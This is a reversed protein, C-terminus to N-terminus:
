GKANYYKENPVVINFHCISVHGDLISKMIVTLPLVLGYYVPIERKRSWVWEGLKLHYQYVM